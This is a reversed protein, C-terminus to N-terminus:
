STVQRIMDHGGFPNPERVACQPDECWEGDAIFLYRYTGRPLKVTTTWNGDPQKELAVAKQQWETFDGVLLVSTADPATFTFTQAKPKKSRKSM